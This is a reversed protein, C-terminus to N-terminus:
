GAAPAHRKFYIALQVAIQDALAEAMRREVEESEMDAAFYQQDIINYGDLVRANGSALTTRLPDQATLTWVSSGILRVRTISADQQIGIPEGVLAYTAVLDYRQAVGSSGRNLRAQLAQRLEQGTREPILGVNIAAMGAEAPGATGPASRAYIPSFGCGPLMAALALLGLGRRTFRGSAQM